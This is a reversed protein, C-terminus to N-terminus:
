PNEKALAALINRMQAPPDAMTHTCRESRAVANADRLADLAMQEAGQDPLPDRFRMRDAEWKLRFRGTQGARQKALVFEKEDAPWENLYEPRAQRHGQEARWIFLVIDSDQEISGSEKLDALRPERNEKEMERGLASIMVIPMELEGALEKLGATMEVLHDRMEDDPKRKTIQLYDVSVLAKGKPFKRRFRRALSRIEGLGPRVRNDRIFLPAGRLEKHLANIRQWDPAGFKGARLDNSAIDARSSVCAELVEARSMELSFLLSPIGCELSAHTHIQRLLSSKAGGPRAAITVLQGPRLGGTLTDLRIVGTPVGVVVERRQNRGDLDDILAGFGDALPEFDSGRDRTLRGLDRMADDVAEAEGGAGALRGGIEIARRANAERRVIAVYHGINEAVPVADAMTVLHGANIREGLGRATLEDAVALVDIPAGREHVAAIAGWVERHVPLWFAGTDLEDSVEVFAQPKLLIGGLVAREADANHPANTM